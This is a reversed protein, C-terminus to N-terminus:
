NARFLLSSQERPQVSQYANNTPRFRGAAPRSCKADTVTLPMAPHDPAAAPSSGPGRRCASNNSTVAALLAARRRACRRQQLSGKRRHAAPAGKDPAVHDGGVPVNVKFVRHLVAVVVADYPANRAPEDVVQFGYGSRIEDPDAEPDFISCHAGRARLAHVIDAVRSNRVDAVNEKFAFGLVLVNAREVSGRAAGILTATREAVYTGM